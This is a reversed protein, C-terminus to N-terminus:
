VKTKNGMNSPYVTKGVIPLPKFENDLDDLFFRTVNNEKFNNLNKVAPKTDYSKWDQTPENSGELKRTNELAQEPKTNVTNAHIHGQYVVNAIRVEKKNGDPMMNYPQQFAYIFPIGASGNEMPMQNFFMNPVQDYMRNTKLVQTNPTKIQRENNINSEPNEHVLEPKQTTKITLEEMKSVLKDLFVQLVDTNKDIKKLIENTINDNKEITKILKIKDPNETTPEVYETTTLIPTTLQEMTKTKHFNFFRELDDKTLRLAQAPNSPLVVDIYDKSADKLLKENRNDISVLKERKKNLYASQEDVKDNHQQILSKMQLHDTKLTKNSEETKKIKEVKSFESVNVLSTYLLGNKNFSKNFSTHIEKFGSNLHTNNKPMIKVTVKYNSKAQPTLQDALHTIYPNQLRSERMYQPVLMEDIEPASMTTVEAAPFNEIMKGYLLPSFDEKSKIVEEVFIHPYKSMLANQRSRRSLVNNAYSSEISSPGFIYPSLIDYYDDTVKRPSIIDYHEESVKQPKKRRHNPPTIIDFHENIKESTEMYPMEVEKVIARDAFIKEDSSAFIDEESNHRHHKTFDKAIIRIKDIQRKSRKNQQFIKKSAMSKTNIYRNLKTKYRIDSIKRVNFSRKKRELLEAISFIDAPKLNKNFISDDIVLAPNKKTKSNKGISLNGKSNYVDQYNDYILFNKNFIMKYENSHYDREMEKISRRVISHGDTEPGPYEQNTPYGKYASNENNTNENTVTNTGEEDYKQHYTQIINKIGTFLKMSEEDPQEDIYQNFGISFGSGSIDKVLMNAYSVDQVNNYKLLTENISGTNLPMQLREPIGNHMVKNYDTDLESMEASNIAKSVTLFRPHYYNRWYNGESDAVNPLKEYLPMSKSIPDSERRVLNNLPMIFQKVIKATNENVLPNQNRKKVHLRNHKKKKIENKSHIAKQIKEILDRIMKKKKEGKTGKSDFHTEIEVFLEDDENKGKSGLKETTTEENEYPTNVHRKFRKTAIKKTDELSESEKSYRKLYENIIKNMYIKPVDADSHRSKDTDLNKDDADKINEVNSDVRLYESLKGSSHRLVMPKMTTIGDDVRRFRM